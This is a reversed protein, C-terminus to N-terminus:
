GSCDYWQLSLVCSQERYEMVSSERLDLLLTRLSCNQSFFAETRLHKEILVSYVKNDKYLRHSM